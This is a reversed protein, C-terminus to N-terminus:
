RVLGGVLRILDTETTKLNFIANLRAQTANIYSLQVQRYDFINVLGANFRDEAIELSRRANEVLQNTVQVLQKQNNYTALTNELETSVNRKFDEIDLQAIIEQVRANEINRRRVGWDFINHVLGFNVFTNFNRTGVGGLDREDGNALTSSGFHNRNINYTGGARLGVVPMRTSEVLRTDLQALERNIFLNQLTRNNALMRTRLDDIAYNQADFELADSLQYRRSLEDVGMALNLNRFANDLTNRQILYSTSDNIYADQSQLVDFSAAQGFEQRAITYDLREKSLKLVEERVRLQEQQVLAQYYALIINQITGEVAIQVNGQSLRELQELQQKTLRVRSGNYLTWNLEVGPQLNSSILNSRRVFSAPNQTNDANNYGNNFNLTGDLTPYYGAISWDNRNQTIELQREAIQIQYNNQLGLAIAQQLSLSEQNFAATLACLFTLTLCIRM